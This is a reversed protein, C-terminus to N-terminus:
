NGGESYREIEGKWKTNKFRDINSIKMQEKCYPCKMEKTRNLWFEAREEEEKIAILLREIDRRLRAKESIWYKFDELADIIMEILFM